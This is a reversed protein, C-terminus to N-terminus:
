GKTELITSLYVYGNPNTVLRIVLDQFPGIGIARTRGEHMTYTATQLEMHYRGLVHSPLEWFHVPDGTSGPTGIIYGNSLLCVLRDHEFVEKRIPRIATWGDCFRHLAALQDSPVPVM